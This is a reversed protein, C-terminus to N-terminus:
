SGTVDLRPMMSRVVCPLPADTSIIIPNSVSFGGDLTVEVEGTFLGGISDASNEWKPDDWNIAFLDNDNAGYEAATTNHFSIDMKPVRTITGQSSGGRSGAVIRMPQLKSKYPLGVNVIQAYVGTPLTVAGSAVQLGTYSVGDALMSVTEGNLHSLGSVTSFRAGILVQRGEYLLDDNEWTVIDSLTYTLGCDVYYANEIYDFARPALKEIYIYDTGAINRKISIWVDDEDPSSTTVCVSQVFGDIPCKFWAVCNEDREYIMGVLSGDGLVCWLIQDPNYQIAVNVIGSQTIHESLATLNKARNKSDGANYISEYVRRNTIMLVSENAKIPQVGNSGYSSIGKVSYNTPTIPQRMKNSGIEWDDAFTSVILSELSSICIVDETSPITVIFSDADKVDEEFNEYDGTHSLWGKGISPESHPPANDYLVQTQIDQMGIFCCRDEFFDVSVPYGRLPSWAGEAWRRTVSTVSTGSIIEIITQSTSNISTAMVICDQTSNSCTISAKLYPDAYVFEIATVVARYQVNDADEVKTFTSNIDALVEWVEVTEWGAGNENRQLELTASKLHGKAEFRMSGKIDIAPCIIYGPAAVSDGSHYKDTSVKTERPFTLKFLAGIHGSEFYNIPTTGDSQVCSMTGSMGVTLTSITANVIKISLDSNTSIIWTAGDDNSSWTHGVFTSSGDDAYRFWNNKNSSSGGPGPTTATVAYLKGSQFTVPASLVFEVWTKSAPVSAAAITSTALAVAGPIGTLENDTTAKSITVIFDTNTGTKSISLWISSFTMDYLALITQTQFVDGGAGKYINLSVGGPVTADGMNTTSDLIMYASDTTHDPNILDNRLLFPGKKYIVEDLSFSTGSTRILKYQPYDRHTIWMTDGIQKVQLAFLDAALYPSDIANLSDFVENGNDWVRENNDTVISRPRIYQDGFELSYSITSSYIFPILRITQVTDDYQTSVYRTGQRREAAGYIRPYFGELHRCGSAYKEVDSRADILPSLEGANFSLIPQNM